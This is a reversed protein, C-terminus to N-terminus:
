RSPILPRPRPPHTPFNTLNANPEVGYLKRATFTLAAYFTNAFLGMPRRHNLMDSIKKTVCLMDDFLM